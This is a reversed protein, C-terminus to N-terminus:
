GLFTSYDSFLNGWKIEPPGRVVPPTDSHETDVALRRRKNHSTQGEDRLRHWRLATNFVPCHFLAHGALMAFPRTSCYHVFLYSLSRAKECCTDDKQVVIGSGVRCCCRDVM